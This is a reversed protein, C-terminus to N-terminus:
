SPKVLFLPQGFEVAEGNKVLVKAIQGRTEAKIENMVKMAEVICVVTEEDVEAGTEVFAPEDPAPASYFTGVMPSPITILGENEDRAPEAASAPAAAAPAPQPAAMPTVQVVAGARKLSIRTDQDRIDVEALENDVMLQVLERIREIDM